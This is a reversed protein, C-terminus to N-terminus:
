KKSLYKDTRITAYITVLFTKYARCNVFYFICYTSKMEIYYFCFVM